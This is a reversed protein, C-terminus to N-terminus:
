DLYFNNIDISQGVCKNLAIYVKQTKIYDNKALVDRYKAITKSSVGVMDSVDQLTFVKNEQCLQDIATYVKLLTVWERVGNSDALQKIIKINRISVEVKKEIDRYFGAIFFNESTSKDQKYIIIDNDKLWELAAIVVKENAATPQMGVYELINKYTGRFVCMPTAAIALMVLFAWKDLSINQQDINLISKQEDFLTLARSGTLDEEFYCTKDGRGEKYINVGYKKLISAQAKKFQNKIYSESIDYKKSIEKITM